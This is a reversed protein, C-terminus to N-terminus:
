PLIGEPVMWTHVDLGLRGAKVAPDSDALEKAEALSAVKFVFMGRLEGNDGFPGAVVLKKTEALRNINAMHGKQIEETQPTREATWKPGRTLFALYATAFKIPMTPKKMVEESWWPHLEAKVYGGKVLPDADAWARAEEASGARLVYIAALDNHDAVPGAIVAKGSELLSAIQAKLEDMAWKRQKVDNASWKPGRKLLVMHFEVMKPQPEAKQQAVTPRAIATLLLATVLIALKM